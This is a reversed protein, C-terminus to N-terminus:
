LHTAVIYDQRNIQIELCNRGALPTNSFLVTISEDNEQIVFNKFSIMNKQTNAGGLYIIKELKKYLDLVDQNNHLDIAKAILPIIYEKFKKVDELTKFESIVFDTDKDKFPLFVLQDEYKFKFTLKKNRSENRIAIM